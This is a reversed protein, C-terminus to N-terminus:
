NVFQEGNQQNAPINKAAENNAFPNPPSQM